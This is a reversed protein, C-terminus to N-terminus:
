LVEHINRGLEHLREDGVAAFLSWSDPVVEYLCFHRCKRAAVPSQEEYRAFKRERARRSRLVWDFHLLYADDPAPEGQGVIFGPTHLDSQYVVKKAQFLRWQRDLRGEPGFPFFYSRELRRSATNYRLNARPFSYATAPGSDPATDAFELLKATPLEDDDLRLIWPTEVQAVISPLLAEIRAEDGYAEIIPFGYRGILERTGDSTRHDVAYLPKIGADRYFDLFHGLWPESNVTPIVLRVRAGFTEYRGFGGFAPEPWDLGGFRVGNVAAQRVSNMAMMHRVLAPARVEHENAIGTLEAIWEPDISLHPLLLEHLGAVDAPSLRGRRAAYEPSRAMEVVVSLTTRGVKKEIAADSEPDRELLERYLRIVEDKTAGTKGRRALLRRAYEESQAFEIFLNVLPRGVNREVVVSNEPERELLVRYLKRVDEATAQAEDGSREEPPHQVCYVAFEEQQDTPSVTTLCGL